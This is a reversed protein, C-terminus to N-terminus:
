ARTKPTQNIANRMYEIAQQQGRHVTAVSVHMIDAIERLTLQGWIRSVLIERWESPLEQLLESVQEPSIEHESSTSVDVPLFYDAQHHSAEIERARRRRETRQVNFARNRVVRYLWASIRQPEPHQLMLEIFAEQVVDEASGCFQRAYLVLGPGHLRMTEALKEPSMPGDAHRFSLKYTLCRVLLEKEHRRCFVSTRRRCSSGNTIM